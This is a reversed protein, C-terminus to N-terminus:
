ETDGGDDVDEVLCVHTESDDGWRVDPSRLAKREAEAEDKAAVIVDGCTEEVLHVHYQKMAKLLVRLAQSTTSRLAVFATGKGKRQNCEPSPKAAYGM